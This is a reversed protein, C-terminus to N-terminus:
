SVREGRKRGLVVLYENPAGSDLVQGMRERLAAWEGRQELYGRVVSAQASHSVRTNGLM